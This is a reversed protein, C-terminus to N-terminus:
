ALKQSKARTKIYALIFSLAAPTVGDIRSAQGLTEPRIKSLKEKIENSLSPFEHYDIDRPINVKEDKNLSLIESEQKKLYGKYHAEISVQEKIDDEIQEFGDLAFVEYIKKM